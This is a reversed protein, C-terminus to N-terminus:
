LAVAIVWLEGRKLSDSLAACRGPVDDHPDSLKHAASNVQFPSLPLVVGSAVAM